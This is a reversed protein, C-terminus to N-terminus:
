PLVLWRNLAMIIKMGEERVLTFGSIFLRKLCHNIVIFTYRIVRCRCTIVRYFGLVMEYIFFLRLDM